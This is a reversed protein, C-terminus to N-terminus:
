TVIDDIGEDTKRVVGGKAGEMPERTGASRIGFLALSDTVYRGLALVQDTAEQRLIGFVTGRSALHEVM